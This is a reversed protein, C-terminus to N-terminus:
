LINIPDHLERSSVVWHSGVMRLSLDLWQMVKDRHGRLGRVTNEEGKKAAEKSKPQEEMM